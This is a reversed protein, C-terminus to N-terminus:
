PRPIEVPVNDHVVADGLFRSNATNWHTSLYSGTPPRANFYDDGGCDLQEIPTSCRSTTAVGQEPYCMIDNGDTCHYFGNSNPASLSVAGLLHILEHIESSAGTGGRGWCESSKKSDIAEKGERWIVATELGGHAQWGVNSRNAPTPNDSLFAHRDWDPPALPFPSPPYGRTASGCAGVTAGDFWVVYKRDTSDYGGDAVAKMVAFAQSGSARTAGEKAGIEITEVELRCNPMHFRIGLERGQLKSTQRFVGEMRPVIDNAIQPVVQASRDPQGEVYMYLLQVRPGNVGNGMCVPAAVPASALPGDIEQVRPVDSHSCHLDSSGTTSVATFGPGCRPDDAVTTVPTTGSEATSVAGLSPTALLVALLCTGIARAM